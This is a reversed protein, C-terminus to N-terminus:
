RCRRMWDVSSMVVPEAPNPVSPTTVPDTARVLLASSSNALPWIPVISPPIPNVPMLALIASAPVRAVLLASTPRLVTSPENTSDAPADTVVPPSRARLPLPTIQSSKGNALPPPSLVRATPPVRVTLLVLLLASYMPLVKIPAPSVSVAAASTLLPLM